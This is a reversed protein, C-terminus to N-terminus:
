SDKLNLFMIGPFHSPIQKAHAMELKGDLERVRKKTFGFISNCLIQYNKDDVISDNQSTVCWEIIIFANIHGDMKSLLELRDKSDKPM